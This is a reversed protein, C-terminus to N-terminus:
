VISTKGWVGGCLCVLDHSIAKTANSVSVYLSSLLLRNQALSCYTVPHRATFTIIERIHSATSGTCVELSCPQSYISVGLLLVYVFPSLLTVAWYNGSVAEPACVARRLFTFCGREAEEAMPQGVTARAVARSCPEVSISYINQKWLNMSQLHGKVLKFFFFFTNRLEFALLTRM